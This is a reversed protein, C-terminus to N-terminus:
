WCLKIYSTEDLDTTKNVHYQVILASCAIPVEITLLKEYANIWFKWETIMIVARSLIDNKTLFYPYKEWEGCVSRILVWLM